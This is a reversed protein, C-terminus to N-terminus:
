NDCNFSCNYFAKCCEILRQLDENGMMEISSHMALQAIGIDCSNMVLLASSDLGLTSGSRLNSNCYFDQYKISNKDLLNKLQAATYGDTSYTINHKVVVGGNLKIPNSIDSKEMHAPHSAHANDISLIVGKQCAKILDFNDFGLSDNILRIVNNLLLSNAGQKSTNGVEENDFCCAMGIGKHKGECLSSIISYVSALNDLRPSCIFEDNKGSLFPAIDPVLFLDSDLIDNQLNLLDKLDEAEGVLPLLDNQVAFAAKENVGRNQHIALSPITVNFSSEVLKKEVKEGNKCLIRGAIKLPLDFLSYNIISGYGEINLRKGQVSDVLKNGKIKLCPFDTHAEAINFEYNSLDGVVFAIIATQNKTLYYKGGKEIKWASNFDLKKFDNETLIRECNEVVHFPSYSTQLFQKIDM